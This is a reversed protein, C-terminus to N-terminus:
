LILFDVEFRRTRYRARWVNAVRLSQGFRVIKASIVDMRRAWGDRM